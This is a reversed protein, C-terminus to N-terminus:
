DQHFPPAHTLGSRGKVHHIVGVCRERQAIIRTHDAGATLGQLGIQRSHNGFRIRAAAARFPEVTRVGPLHAFADRARLHQPEILGVSVDQHQSIDWQFGLVAAVSDRFCNPVIMIGTALALGAVTFAAQVPRRELNRVAIRFSHSFLRVIGTREVVSPRYRSPPEPRMAEAPPLRAARRVAGLVGVLAALASVGLAIALASRDLDFRLEPFRFWMRYMVVLRRGLMRSWVYQM